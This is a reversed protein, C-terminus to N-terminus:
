LLGLIEKMQDRTDNRGQTWFIEFLRPLLHDNHIDSLDMEVQFGEHKFVGCRTEYAGLELM